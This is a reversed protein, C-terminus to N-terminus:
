TASNCTVRLVIIGNLAYWNSEVDQPYVSIQFCSLNKKGRNQNLVKNQFQLHVLVWFVHWPMDGTVWLLTVAHSLWTSARSVFNQRQWKSAQTTLAATGLVSFVTFNVSWFISLYNFDGESSLLGLDLSSLPVEFPHTLKGKLFFLFDLGLSFSLRLPSYHCHGHLFPEPFLILTGPSKPFGLGEPFTVGLRSLLAPPQQLCFYSNWDLPMAMGVTLHVCSTIM